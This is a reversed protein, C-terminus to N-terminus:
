YSPISVSLSDSAVYEPHASLAALSAFLVDTLINGLGIWSKRDGFLCPIVFHGNMEM